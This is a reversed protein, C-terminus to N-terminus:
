GKWTVTVTEPAFGKRGQQARHLTVTMFLGVLARQRDTTLTPWVDELRDLVGELGDLVPTRAHTALAAEVDALRARLPEVAERVDDPTLTGDAVLAALGALRERIATQETLLDATKDRGEVGPRLADLADPQRLRAALVGLVYADVAERNRTMHCGRCTYRTGGVGGSVIPRPDGCACRFLGSGLYKRATTGSANTKRRPDALRANVLDFEVPDVLATWSGDGVARGKYIRRGAYRPNTLITRVSSPTMGHRRSLTRLTDGQAFESFLARVLKAEDEHVSGDTNYGKCRTGKPVGGREARQQNARSQREGKRRVEFRAIGALMTARFEGDATTLDIEGDVTVAMLGADILANLDRTSRLLRDLDVAIVVDLLGEARDALMRAWDTGKGRTKSASVDLDVYEGVIRWGRSEALATTRARQREIGDEGNRTPSQRLYLAARRAGPATAPSKARAKRILADASTLARNATTM